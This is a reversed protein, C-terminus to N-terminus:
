GRLFLGITLATGIVIVGIKLAREPMRKLAHAGLYGGLMAGAGVIAAERWAVAGSVAFILAASLNSLGILVNKTGGANRVPLRALTLSALTLIGAGGGFFGSYLAISSQTLVTVWAPPPASAASRKPGFTSWAFLATAILVLWPVMVAFARVPTAILLFAGAVGGTLSILALTRFSLREAGSVLSRGAWGTTIQGPFLAMTSTINALKPDLGAAILAPLTIFSGGGALANQAGAWLGAVFLLLLMTM